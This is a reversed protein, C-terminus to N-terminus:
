RAELHTMTVENISSSSQTQAPSRDHTEKSSREAHFGPQKPQPLMVSESILMLVVSSMSPRDKPCKQVCLLGIQICRLVNSMPSSHEMLSDLLESAKGKTWLNWAQFPEIYNHGLLNLDHDPHQFQRNKKGSIIELVIVGFSFVDSKTSFLGDIAYEPPM